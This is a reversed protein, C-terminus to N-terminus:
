AGKGSNRRIKLARIATLKKRREGSNLRSVYGKHVGFSKAILNQEMGLDLLGLIARIDNMTLKM